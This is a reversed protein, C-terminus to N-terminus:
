KLKQVRKGLSIWVKRYEQPVIITVRLGFPLSVHLTCKTFYSKPCNWKLLVGDCQSKRSVKCINQLHVSQFCGGIHTRLLCLELLQQFDGSFYKQQLGTTDIKLCIGIAMNMLITCFNSCQPLFSGIRRYQIYKWVEIAFPDSIYINSRAWCCTSKRLSSNWMFM